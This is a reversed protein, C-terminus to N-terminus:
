EASDMRRNSVCASIQRQWRRMKEAYAEESFNALLADSAEGFTTVAYSVLVRSEHASLPEIQVVIHASHSAPAVRIYEARHRQRDVDVITWIAEEGGEGERFVTDRAFAIKDPFVPRPDWGKVWSREGEPSFLPFAEGPSCPLDFGGTRTVQQASIQLINTM